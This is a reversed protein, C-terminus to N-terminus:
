EVCECTLFSKNIIDWDSEFEDLLVVSNSSMGRQALQIAESESSAEVQWKEIFYVARQVSVEVLYKM